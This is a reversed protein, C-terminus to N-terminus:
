HPFRTWGIPIGQTIPSLTSWVELIAPQVQLARSQQQDSSFGRNRPMPSGLHGKSGPYSCARAPFKSDAVGYSNAKEGMSWIPFLPAIDKLIGEGEAIPLM